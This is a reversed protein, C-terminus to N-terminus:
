GRGGHGSAPVAALARDLAEGLAEEGRLVEAEIRLVRIRDDAPFPPPLRFADKETTVLVEAGAARAAALAGEVEQPSFRHHDAFHRAEVVEAGLEEVTRRVSGPRAVGTLLGVRRGDLEALPFARALAADALDRPAHRSEVPARGSCRSALRRLEALAGEGARDV